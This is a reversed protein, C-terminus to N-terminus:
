DGIGNSMVNRNEIVRISDSQLATVFAPSLSRVFPKLISIFISYIQQAWFTSMIYHLFLLLLIFCRYSFFYCLAHKSAVRLSLINSDKERKRSSLIKISCQNDEFQQASPLHIIWCVEIAESSSNSFKMRDKPFYSAHSM